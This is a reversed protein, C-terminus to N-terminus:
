EYDKMQELYADFLNLKIMELMGILEPYSSDHAEAYEMILNMIRSHLLEGPANKTDERINHIKATM